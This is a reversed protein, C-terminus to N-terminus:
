WQINAPEVIDGTFSTMVTYKDLKEEEESEVSSADSVGLGEIGKADFLPFPEPYEDRATKAIEDGEAVTVEREDKNGAEVVVEDKKDEEIKESVPLKEVAKADFLPIPKPADDKAAATMEVKEAMIVTQSSEMIEPAVEWQEDEEDEEDEEDGEDGEINQVIKNDKAVEAVEDEAAVAVAGKGGDSEKVEVVVKEIDEDVRNEKGTLKVANKKAKVVKKDKTKKEFPNPIRQM